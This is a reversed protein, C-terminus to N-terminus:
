NSWKCDHGFEAFKVVQLKSVLLTVVEKKALESCPVDFSALVFKSSFGASIIKKHNTYTFHRIQLLGGETM